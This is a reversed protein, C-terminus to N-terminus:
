WEHDDLLTLVLDGDALETIRIDSVNVQDMFELLDQFTELKVEGVIPYGSTEHSYNGATVRSFALKM